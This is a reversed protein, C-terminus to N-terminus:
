MEQKWIYLTLVTELQAGGRFPINNLDSPCITLDISGCKHGRMDDLHVLYSLHFLIRDGRM